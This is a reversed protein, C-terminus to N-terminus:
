LEILVGMKSDSVDVLSKFDGAKVMYVNENDLRVQLKDVATDFKKLVFIEEGVRGILANVGDLNVIYFGKNSDIEYSSKVILGNLNSEKRQAIPNSIHKPQIPKQISMSPKVKALSAAVKNSLGKNPNSMKRSQEKDLLAFYEDISSMIYDQEKEMMKYDRNEEQLYQSSTNILDSVRLNANRFRRTTANLANEQLKVFKGETFKHTRPLSKKVRNRNSSQLSAPKAFSKLKIGQIDEQITEDESIVEAITDESIDITHPEYIKPTKELVNELELRKKDVETLPDPTTIFAYKRSKVQGNSEEVFRQYREQWNLDRANIIDEYTGQTIPQEALNEKFSAKLAISKQVSNRAMKALLYLGLLPFVVFAWNSSQGSRSTRESSKSIKEIKEVEKIDFAEEPQTTEVVPAIKEISQMKEDFIETFKEGTKTEVKPPAVDVIKNPSNKVNITTKAAPIEKPKVTSVSSTVTTKAIEKAPENKQTVQKPHTKVQAIIEKAAKEEQTVPAAKKVNTKINLPKTTIFTVKTYGGIGDDVNKIDVNTIIDKVASLDPKGANQGAVNPMLIVYKNDSKRTVMPTGSIETTHFTINVEGDTVKNIDMQVLSSANVSTFTMCMVALAALVNKKNIM